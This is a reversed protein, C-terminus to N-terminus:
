QAKLVVVPDLASAHRAPLYGALLTVVFLVVVVGAYVAIDLTRVELTGPELTSTGKPSGVPLQYSAVPL